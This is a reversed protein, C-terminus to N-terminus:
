IRRVNFKAAEGDTLKRNETPHLGRAIRSATLADVVASQEAASGGGGLIVAINIPGVPAGDTIENGLAGRMKLGTELYKHRVAHDVVESEVAFNTGDVKLSRITTAELGEELKSLLAGLRLKPREDMLRIVEAKVHPKALERFAHQRPQTYGARAGIEHLTADPDLVRERVLRKQKRTLRKNANM